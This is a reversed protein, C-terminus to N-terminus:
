VHHKDGKVRVCMCRCVHTYPHAQIAELYSQVAWMRVLVWRHKCFVFGASSSLSQPWIGFKHIQIWLCVRYVIRWLMCTYHNSNSNILAAPINIYNSPVSCFSNRLIKIFKNHNMELVCLKLKLVRTLVWHLKLNMAVSSSKRPLTHLM